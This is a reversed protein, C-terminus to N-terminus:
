AERRSFIRIMASPVRLLEGVLRVGFRVPATLFMVLDEARRLAAQAPEPLDTLRERAKERLQELTEPAERLMERAEDVSRPLRFALVSDQAVEQLEAAMEGVIERKRDAALREHKRFEAEAREPGAQGIFDHHQTARREFAAEKKRTGQHTPGAKSTQRPV